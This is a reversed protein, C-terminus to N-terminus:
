VKLGLLVWPSDSLTIDGSRVFHVDVCFNVYNLAMRIKPGTNTQLVRLLKRPASQTCGGYKSPLSLGFFSAVVGSQYVTPKMLLLVEM